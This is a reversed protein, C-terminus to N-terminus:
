GQMRGFHVPKPRTSIFTEIVILPVPFRRKIQRARKTECTIWTTLRLSKGIHSRYRRLYGTHRKAGWTSLQGLLIKQRIDSHARAIKAAVGEQNLDHSGVIREVLDRLPIEPLPKRSKEDLQMQIRVATYLTAGVAILWWVWTPFILQQGRLDAILGILTTIGGIVSSIIHSAVRGLASMFAAYTLGENARAM